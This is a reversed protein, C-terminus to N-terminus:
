EPRRLVEDVYIFGEHTVEIMLTGSHPEKIVLFGARELARLNTPYVRVEGDFGPHMLAQDNGSTMPVMFEEPHDETARSADVMKALLEAQPKNVVDTM